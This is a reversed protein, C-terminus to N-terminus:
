VLRALLADVEAQSRLFWEAASTESAGVRVTLLRHPCKQAFADEDAGDDGLYLAGDCHLVRCLRELADGKHPAGAVLVNVVGRGELVRAGPLREAAARICRLALRKPEARRHHVALSYGKNEIEVGSFAGLECLLQRRWRRVQRAMRHATRSPVGWEIGHNGVVHVDELDGLLSG